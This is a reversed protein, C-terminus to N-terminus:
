GRFLYGRTPIIRAEVRSADPLSRFDIIENGNLTSTKMYNNSTIWHM